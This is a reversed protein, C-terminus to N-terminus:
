DRAHTSSKEGDRRVLKTLTDFDDLVKILKMDTIHEANGCLTVDNIKVTMRNLPVDRTSKEGIEGFFFIKNNLLFLLLIFKLNKFQM